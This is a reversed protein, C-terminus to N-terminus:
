WIWTHIGEGGLLHNQSRRPPTLQLQTSPVEKEAPTGPSSGLHSTQMPFVEPGIFSIRMQPFHPRPSHTFSCCVASTRGQLGRGSQPGRGRRMQQPGLYSGIEGEKGPM